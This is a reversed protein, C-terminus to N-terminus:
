DGEKFIADLSTEEHERMMWNPPEAYCVQRPYAPWHGSAMCDAWTKIARDVKANAVELFMNSLSILSCAYPPEIEQALFVFIPKEGHAEMGRTYFADQMDYGMAGMNRIFANPEANACTKYDLIVARDTTLWDLRSRLRTEGEQWTVTLEPEGDDLIGALESSALFDRAAKVMARMAYDHKKLVPLLGNARAEERQEKAAKTRWDAADIVCIKAANGELLLAHAASGLDFRSSEDPRYNPNLRPHAMWAHLPSQAILIHAVSNSLSPVDCPDAHYQEAPMAEIM